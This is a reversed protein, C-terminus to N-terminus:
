ILVLFLISIQDYEESLGQHTTPNLSPSKSFKSGLNSSINFNAYNQTM